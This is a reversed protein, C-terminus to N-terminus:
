HAMGVAAELEEANVEIEYTMGPEKDPPTLLAEEVCLCVAREAEADTPRRAAGGRKRSAAEDLRVMFMAGGRLEQVEWIRVTAAKESVERMELPVQIKPSEVRKWQSM